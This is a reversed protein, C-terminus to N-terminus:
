WMSIDHLDYELPKFNVQSGLEIFSLLESLFSCIPTNDLFSSTITPNWIHLGSDHLCNGVLNILACRDISM